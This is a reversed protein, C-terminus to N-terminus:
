NESHYFIDIDLRITYLYTWPRAPFAYNPLALVVLFAEWLRSEFPFFDFEEPAENWQEFHNRQYYIFSRNSQFYWRLRRYGSKGSLLVQQGLSCLKIYLRTSFKHKNSFHWSHRTHFEHSLVLQGLFSSQIKLDVHCHTSYVSSHISPQFINEFILSWWFTRWRIFLKIWLKDRRDWVRKFPRNLAKFSQAM